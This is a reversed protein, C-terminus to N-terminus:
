TTAASATTPVSIWRVIPSCPLLRTTMRFSNPIWGHERRRNEDILAFFAKFFDAMSGRSARTAAETPPNTPRSTAKEADEGLVRLFDSISPWYKLDFRSRLADLPEKLWSRFYGNHVSALEIVECVHYHTGSYFGSRNHLEDREDFLASLELAKHAIAANVADLRDRETRAEANREPSWLAAASMLVRFFEPLAHEHRVLKEHLEAYAKVLEPRRALLRDVVRNESPWIHHDENYQKADRLLAECAQTPDSQSPNAQTM